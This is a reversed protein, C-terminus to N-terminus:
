GHNKHIFETTGFASPGVVKDDDTNEQSLAALVKRRAAETRALLSKRVELTAILVMGTGLVAVFFPGIRVPDVMPQRRVLSIARVSLGIITGGFLVLGVSRWIPAPEIPQTAFLFCEGLFFILFLLWALPDLVLLLELGFTLM